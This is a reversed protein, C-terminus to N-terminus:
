MGILNRVLGWLVLVCVLALEAGQGLRGLSRSGDRVYRLAHALFLALFVPLLCLLAANYGFAAPLDLRLLSLLMRSVGCGPCNLGTVLHFPCPLGWHTLSCFIAYACGVCLIAASQILLKKLRGGM